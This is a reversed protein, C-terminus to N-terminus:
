KGQPAHRLLVLLRLATAAEICLLALSLAPAAGILPMASAAVALALVLRWLAQVSLERYAARAQMVSSLVRSALGASGAGLLLGLPLLWSSVSTGLLVSACVLAGALMAGVLLVGQAARVWSAVSPGGDARAVRDFVVPGLYAAALVFVQYAHLGLSAEGIAAGRVTLAGVLSLLAAPLLAALASQVWSERAVLWLEARASSELAPQAVLGYKVKFASPSICSCCSGAVYRLFWTRCGTWRPDVRRIVDALCTARHFFWFQVPRSLVDVRVTGVPPVGFVARQGRSSGSVVLRTRKGAVVIGADVAGDRGVRMCCVAM